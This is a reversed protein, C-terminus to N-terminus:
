PERTGVFQYVTVGDGQALMRYNQDFWAILEQSWPIRFPNASLVVYDAAAFWSRWAAVLEPDFPGDSPPLTDPDYAIWTSFTDVVDPCSSRNPVFRDALLTLAAEDTVTCAGAPVYDKIQRGQEGITLLAPNTRLKHTTEAVGWISGVVVLAIVAVSVSAEVKRRTPRQSALSGVFRVVRDCCIGFLLAMFAAAFYTYHHHFDPSVFMMAVAFTATGLVFWDLKTRPVPVLYAIAVLVVVVVAFVIPVARGQSISPLGRIGTVLFLREVASTTEPSDQRFFQIAVLDRFFNRPALLVFPLAPVVFGVVVGTVLPRVQRRWHPLCCAIAVAVPMLAWLKLTCAFGLLLGGIILRRRGALDDGAFLVCAGLLCFCVLYPELMLTKNATVAMPFLALASGAVLAPAIGRRRLLLAVLMANAAAVFATFIRIDAMLTRTGVVRGLLGLPSLLIPLGPPQPYVFNKYPLTGDVLRMVTGLYFGDDYEDIGYLAGPRSLQYICIGLALLGTAVAAVTALRPDNWWRKDRVAPREPAVEVDLDAGM